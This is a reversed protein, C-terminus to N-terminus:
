SGLDWDQKYNLRLVLNKLHEHCVKLSCGFIYNNAETGINFLWRAAQHYFLVNGKRKGRDSRYQCVYAAFSVLKVRLTSPTLISLVFHHLVRFFSQFGPLHTSM